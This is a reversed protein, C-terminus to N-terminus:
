AYQVVQRYAQLSSQVDKSHEYEAALNFYAITTTILLSKEDINTYHGVREPDSLEQLTYELHSVAEQAFQIATLHKGLISLIACINLKTSAVHAPPARNAVDSRLAELMYRLAVNPTGIKKYYCGLNNMTLAYIKNRDDESIASAREDHLLLESLRLKKQAKAYKEKAVAQMAQQNLNILLSATVEQAPTCTNLEELLAIAEQTTLNENAPVKSYTYLARSDEKRNSSRCTDGIAATAHGNSELAALVKSVDVSENSNRNLAVTLGQPSKESRPLSHKKM